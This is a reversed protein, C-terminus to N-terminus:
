LAVSRCNWITCIHWYQVDFRETQETTDFDRDRIISLCAFCTWGGLSSDVQWISFLIVYGTRHLRSHNWIAIFMLM